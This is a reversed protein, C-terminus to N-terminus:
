FPLDSEEPPTPAQPTATPAQPTVSGVVTVKWANVNNFYKGQYERAKTDFDIEVVDGVNLAVIKDSMMDFALSQPYQGESEEVVATQKSWATGKASTGEQLPLVVTIKGTIKM